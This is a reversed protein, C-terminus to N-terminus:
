AAPAAEKEDKEKKAQIVGVLNSGPANIQALLKAAPANLLGLLQSRAEALTPLAAMTDVANAGIMVDDEVFGGKIQFKDYKKTLAQAAKGLAAAEDDYKFAVATTNTFIEAVKERKTGQLARKFLTNKVVLYDVGAKRLERRIESVAAVNLGSFNAVLASKARGLREALDKVVEAKAERNTSM